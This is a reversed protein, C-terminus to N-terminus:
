PFGATAEALAPLLVRDIELALVEAGAEALAVTLSGLGAGVELIRAGPAAGSERAILRALNSDALFHQGLSKKPRIGHRSALEQLSRRTLLPNGSSASRSSGRGSPPSSPSPTTRSTSSGGTSSRDVTM